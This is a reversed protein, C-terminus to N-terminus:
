RATFPQRWRSSSSCTSASISSSTRTSFLRSFGASSMSNRGTSASLRPRSSSDARSAAPSCPRAPAARAPHPGARPRNDARDLGARHDGHRHHSEGLGAAHLYEGLLRRDRAGRLDGTLSLVGLAAALIFALNMEASKAFEGREMAESLHKRRQSNPRKTKSTRLWGAHLYCRQHWPSPAFHLNLYALPNRKSLVAPATRRGIRM